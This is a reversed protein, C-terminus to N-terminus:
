GRLARSSGAAVDGVRPDRDVLQQVARIAVLRGEDHRLRWGQRAAEDDARRADPEHQSGNRAVPRRPLASAAARRGRQVELAQGVAEAV